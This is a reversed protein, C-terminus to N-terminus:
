RSGIAVANECVAVRKDDADIEVVAGMPLTLNDRSYGAPFGALVPVQLQSFYEEWLAAFAEAPEAPQEDSSFSGLLLGAAAQPKGAPRLQALYRDVRYLREGLDELFLIRGATDIEFTTGMTGALVSLKGGTLRGSARGPERRYGACQLPHM